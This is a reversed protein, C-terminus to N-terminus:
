ARCEVVSCAARAAILRIREPPAVPARRQRRGEEGRLDRARQRMGLAPQQHILGCANQSRITRRDRAQEGRATRGAADRADTRRAIHRAIAERLAECKSQQSALVSRGASRGKGATRASASRIAASVGRMMLQLPYARRAANM